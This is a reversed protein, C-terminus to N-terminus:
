EAVEEAAAEEAIAQEVFGKMEQVQPLAKVDDALADIYGLLEEPTQAPVNGTLVLFAGMLNDTNKEFSENLFKAITESTEPAPNEPNFDEPLTTVFDQTATVYETYADNADTGTIMVGGYINGEVLIKEGDLFIPAVPSQNVAFMGMKAPNEEGNIEMEFSGDTVTALGLIMEGNFDMVAVQGTFGEITGEVICKDSSGCAVFMFAAAVVAFIKKM